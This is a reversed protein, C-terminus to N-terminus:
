PNAISRQLVTIPLQTTTEIEQFIKRAQSIYIDRSFNRRRTDIPCSEARRIATGQLFGFSGIIASHIMEVLPNPKTRRREKGARERKLKELLKQKSEEHGKMYADSIQEKNDRRMINLQRFHDMNMWELQEELERKLMSKEEGSRNRLDDDQMGGALGDQVKQAMKQAM